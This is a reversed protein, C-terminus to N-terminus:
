ATLRVVTLVPLTRMGYAACDVSVTTNGTWEVTAGVVQTCGNLGSFNGNYNIAGGASYIAGTMKSTANGNFKSTGTNARDMFFLVGAYPGTTQAKLDVTGNANMDVTGNKVFITVGNGIVNAGSSVSFDSDVYYVGPNMTVNNKLVLGNTYRGPSITTNNANKDSYVTGTNPPVAMDAYPDGVSPANTMPATCETLTLGSTIHAGGVSIVCTTSLIGAGQINMADSANSNSMVSCGNLTLASSGSFNAAKSATPSLALICASAANNYTAVARTVIPPDNQIFLGTFFREAKDRLVVEVSGGGNVTGPTVTITTAPQVFGNQNVTLTAVTTVETDNAGSRKELAGGYAAADAAAQMALRKYYWYTTEVGFGAGGVIVPLALAFLIAVNGRRCAAFAGRVTEIQQRMTM